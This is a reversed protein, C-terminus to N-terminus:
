VAYPPKTYGRPSLTFIEYGDETVGLQHEFQASLSRDRTVATWEDALVKVDPKGLNLMPEITFVMGAELVTGQGPRGYHLVSPAEHFSRGIGHGCFDRVVGLRHKEAFSQIAYGIDGLTAGPRVQEIGLMLAQYTLDILKEAKRPPKGVVYMRSTDGYWGNLISTVDINLVDGEQLRREGPIGHCVVHNLSICCSKPFGHYNLPAPTAGHALTYDHIIKDLEGTTIGPRVHETIMDLTAAALQGAAKLHKFDEATYHQINRGDQSAM